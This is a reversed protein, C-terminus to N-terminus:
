RTTAVRLAETATRAIYLGRPLGALDLRSQGAIRESRRILRGRLDVLRIEDQVNGTVFNGERLLATGRVMRSGISTAGAPEGYVLGRGASSMYVRGFVNWDGRVLQGNGVGGFQHAADNIRTWTAGKDTSRYMGIPGHNAAGWVFLTPYAAGPASKGLGVSICTQVLSTDIRTYTKGGDATWALGNKTYGGPVWSQMQDLPIWLEGTKGPLSALKGSSAQYLNKSEDQVSGAKAWTAGADGTVWMKGQADLIYLVKADVPDPVLPSNQTQGEDIGTLKAWTAGGDASRYTSSAMEARHFYVTGDANMATMGKGAPVTPIKTWTKGLDSSLFGVDTKIETGTSWDSQTGIRLIKHAVPAYGLSLTTGVEPKYSAYSQHIDLYAAGDYDGIATLMPGGAISLAEFPVVEEIGQAAFKWITKAASVDDTRFVGNGSTVWVRKTDFPDFEVSGAWHIAKGHIWETGNPDVNTDTRSKNAYTNLIRWTAGADKSEFLKDGWGDTSDAYRWQGGYHCLTSAVLHNTDRPDASIGGLAGGRAQSGDGFYGEEDKPTINTWTGSEMSVRWMAGGTVSHPGPGGAYSVLLSRGAVVARLPMLGAPGGPVPTFTAGGDTTRYLNNSTRGVGVYFTKTAGGATGSASDFVVFSIGNDNVLSGGTKSGLTDAKAWTKGGDTSKFLGNLRSGCWVNQGNRPDVALKEGSQRGMGNGHAKFLSTVETTDFTAGYDSSRLIWTRGNTFYETGGLIYLKAPDQPDLAMAETGMMGLVSEGVWDMLPIWRSTAADWRYAGGVDTRAYALNKQIRSTVIASVFGGGDFRVNGWTYVEASVPDAGLTMGLALAGTWLMSGRM